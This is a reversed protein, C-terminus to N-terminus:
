VRTKPLAYLVRCSEGGLSDSDVCPCFAIKYEACADFVPQLFKRRLKVNLAMTTGENVGNQTYYEALKEYIAPSVCGNLRMTKSIIMKVGAEASKRVIENLEEHSQGFIGNVTPVVPEIKVRINKGRESLRGIAGYTEELPAAIPSYYISNPDNEKLSPISVDINLKPNDTIELYDEELLTQPNRTMVLVPFGGSLLENLAFQSDKAQREIPQFPDTSSSVMVILDGFGLERAKIIRDRLHERFGEQRYAPSGIYCYAHQFACGKYPNVVLRPPCPKDAGWM